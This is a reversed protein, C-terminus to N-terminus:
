RKEDVFTAVGNEIVADGSPRRRYIMQGADGSELLAKDTEPEVYVPIDDVPQEEEEEIEIDDIEELDEPSPAFREIDFNNM